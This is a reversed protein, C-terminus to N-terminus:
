DILRLAHGEAESEEVHDERGRAKKKKMMVSCIYKYDQRGMNSYPSLCPFFALVFPLFSDPPATWTCECTDDAITAPHESM